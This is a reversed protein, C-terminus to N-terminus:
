ILFCSAKLKFVLTPMKITPMIRIKKQHHKASSIICRMYIWAIQLLEGGKSATDYQAKPSYMLFLLSIM